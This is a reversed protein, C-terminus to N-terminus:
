DMRSCARFSLGTLEGMKEAYAQAGAILTVMSQTPFGSPNWLYLYGRLWSKEFGLAKLEKGLKTRGDAKIDVWAFGCAWSEGHLAQYDEAAKRSYKLATEHETKM